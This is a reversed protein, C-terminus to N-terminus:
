ASAHRYRFLLLYKEDRYKELEDLLRDYVVRDSAGWGSVFKPSTKEFEERGITEKFGLNAFHINENGYFKSSSRIFLTYYGADKLSHVFSNQYHRAKGASLLNFNPHSNFSVMLGQLTPQATTRYNRLCHKAILPNGYFQSTHAVLEKNYSNLLDLSLSESTFLVVRKFEPLNLSPYDRNGLPLHYYDIIEQQSATLTQTM